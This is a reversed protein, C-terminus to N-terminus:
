DVILPFNGIEYSSINRNKRNLSKIKSKKVPNESDAASNQTNINKINPPNFHKMNNMMNNKNHFLNNNNITQLIKNKFESMSRKKSSHHSLNGNNNINENLNANVNINRNSLLTVKNDNNDNSNGLLPLNSKLINKPKKFSARLKFPSNIQGNKRVNKYSLAPLLLQKNKNNNKEIEQNNPSSIINM